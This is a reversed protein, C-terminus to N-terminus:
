APHGLPEVRGRARARLPRAPGPRGGRLRIVPRTALRGVPRAALRDGCRVTFGGDLRVAFREGRRVAASPTACGIMPWPVALEWVGGVADPGPPVLGGGSAGGGGPPDGRGRGERPVAASM